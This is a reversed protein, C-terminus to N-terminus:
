ESVIEENQRDREEPPNFNMKWPPGGCPQGPGEKGIVDHQGGCGCEVKSRACILCLRFGLSPNCTKYQAELPFPPQDFNSLGFM